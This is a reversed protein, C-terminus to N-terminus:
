KGRSMGKASQVMRLLEQVRADMNLDLAVPRLVAAVDEYESGAAHPSARLIEAFEAVAAALRFHTDAAAFDPAIESLRLRREIEEVRGNDTRRYRVRVTCLTDTEPPALQAAPSRASRPRLELEYLATVSQGSGVEGADAADNRFDEKRLQRNEYGLQRYRAVSDRDFEVQIKVDRAITNLTAALDEVFAARAEAESDIFRYVGDGKNALAELMEDNYTGQGFGFISCFVGQKRCTEIKRLIDEAALAGLNAAGDSMVLVRNEAGPAFAAAAAEYARRMGEELNTSGRCQLSEIAALIAKRETAPTHALVTRAHDDYQIIALRDAPALREALMVLSKRVLEIRDPRNMSGSTDVLATLVAGRQEERGVRRGKIGIELLRMGRGFKSPAARTYIEFTGKQPPRYGYDFFNVYEETRVSEAPPLFGKLMYNRGLTYSATDVDISFTSFPQQATEVLPNVGAAKFRPGTPDEDSSPQGNLTALSSELREINEATNAVLLKKQDPLYKITAEDLRDLPKQDSTDDTWHKSEDPLAGSRSAAVGRLVVPSKQIAVPAPEAPQPSFAQSAKEREEGSGRELNATKDRVPRGDEKEHLQAQRESLSPLALGSERSSPRRTEEAQEQNRAGPELAIQQQAGMFWDRDETRAFGSVNVSEVESRKKGEEEKIEDSPPPGGKGVLIRSGREGEDIEGM